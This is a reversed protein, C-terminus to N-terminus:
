KRIPDQKTEEAVRRTSCPALQPDTSADALSVSCRFLDSCAASRRLPQTTPDVEQLPTPTRPYRESRAQFRSSGPGLPRNKIGGARAKSDFTDRRVPVNIGHGPNTGEVSDRNQHEEAIVVWRVKVGPVAPLYSPYSEVSGNKISLDRSSRNPQHSLPDADM